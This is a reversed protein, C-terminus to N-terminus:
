LDGVPHILSRLIVGIKHGYHVISLGILLPSNAQELYFLYRVTSKQDSVLLM